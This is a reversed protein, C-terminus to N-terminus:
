WSQQTAYSIAHDNTAYIYVKAITGSKAELM